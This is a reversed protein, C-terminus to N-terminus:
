PQANARRSGDTFQRLRDPRVELEPPPTAPNAYMSRCGTRRTPPSVARSHTKLRRPQHAQTHRIPLGTAVMAPDRFGSNGFFDRDTRRGRPRAKEKCLGTGEGVIPTRGALPAHMR